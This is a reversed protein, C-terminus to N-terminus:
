DDTLDVAARNLISQHLNSLRDAVVQQVNGSPLSPLSPLSHLSPLSPVSPLSHVTPLSPTKAVHGKGGRVSPGVAVALLVPLLVTVVKLDRPANRWADRLWHWSNAVERYPLITEAPEEEPIAEREFKLPSASELVAEPEAPLEREVPISVPDLDCQPLAIVGPFELDGPLEETCGTECDAPIGSFHLALLRDWLPPEPAAVETWPLLLSASPKVVALKFERPELRCIPPVASGPSGSFRVALPFLTDQPPPQLSVETRAAQEEGFAHRHDDCCFEGDTLSRLPALAINCYRCKM